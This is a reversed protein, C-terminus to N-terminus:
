SMREELQARLNAHDLFDAVQKAEQWARDRKDMQDLADYIDGLQRLAYGYGLRDEIERYLRLSKEITSKARDIKGLRLSSFSVNRLLLSEFRKNGLRQFLKITEECLLIAREFSGQLIYIMSLNYNCVGIEAPNHLEQALNAAERAWKQATELNGKRQEVMALLRLVEIMDATSGVEKQLRYAEQAMEAARNMDTDTEYYVWGLYCNAKVQGVINALDTYIDRATGLIKEAPRYEGQNSLIYGQNLYTNALGPGDELQSYIREATQLHDWANDYDSREIEIKARNLLVRALAADSQLTNAATEALQYAQLADDYRGYNLWSQSLDDTLDLLMQWEELDSAVTIAATLNEWERSLKDPQDGNTRAFHLYYATYRRRPADWDALKEAAFDALLPHQQYRTQGTERVLSLASLMYLADEVDYQDRNTVAALAPPAFPRGNFLAMGAFVERLEDDLAEWSIQFSTRVALDSVALGLRQKREHLRAAMATLPM